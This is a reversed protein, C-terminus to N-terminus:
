GKMRAFRLFSEDLEGLFNPFWISSENAVLFGYLTWSLGNISLALSTEFPMSSATKDKIVQFWLFM